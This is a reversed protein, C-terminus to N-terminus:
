KLINTFEGPNGEAISDKNWVNGWHGGILHRPNGGQEISKLGSVLACWHISPFHFGEYGRHGPLM